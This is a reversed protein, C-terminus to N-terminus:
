DASVVKLGMVSRINEALIADEWYACHAKWSAQLKRFKEPLDLCKNEVGKFIREDIPGDIAVPDEAYYFNFWPIDGISIWNQEQKGDVKRLEFAWQIPSGITILAKIKDAASDRVMEYLVDHAILSGLSHAVVVVGDSHSKCCEEIDKRVHARMKKGSDSDLYRIFDFLADLVAMSYDVLNRGYQEKLLWCALKAAGCKLKNRWGNISFVSPFIDKAVLREDIKRMVHDFSENEGEWVSEQWSNKEHQKGGYVLMALSKSFGMRESETGSGIGHVAVVAYSEQKM